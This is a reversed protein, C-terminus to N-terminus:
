LPDRRGRHRARWFFSFDTVPESHEPRLGNFIPSISTALRTKRAGIDPTV